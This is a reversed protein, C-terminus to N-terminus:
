LYRNRLIGTLTEWQGAAPLLATSLADFKKRAVARALQFQTVKATDCIALAATTAEELGGEGQRGLWQLYDALLGFNSGLQRLSNFAYLHFFAEEREAVRRAHEPLAASLAAVPNAAPMRTLHNRLLNLSSQLGNEGAGTRAFKVFETYPLFPMDQPQFAGRRFVGDFDEGELAFYGANHFYEMRRGAIDIRNIGITTKGHTIRYAVGQTDPLFFSDVEVLPLRGRGAQMAMHEEVNDYIALEAISFGYLRELDEVPFKFFSMQDGEFDQTVTFALAAEPPQGLSAIVEILLDVYCNTEPWARGPEHLAHPRYGEPSIQPFPAVGAVIGM